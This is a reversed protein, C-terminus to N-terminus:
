SAKDEIDVYEADIVEDDAARDPEAQGGSADSGGGASAAGAASQKYMAEAVRHSAQTLTATASELETLDDS